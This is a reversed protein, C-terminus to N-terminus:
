IVIAILPDSPGRSILDRDLYFSIVIDRMGLELCLIIKIWVGEGGMDVTGRGVVCGDVVDADFPKALSWNQLEGTEQCSGPVTDLHSNLIISRKDSGPNKGKWRVLM